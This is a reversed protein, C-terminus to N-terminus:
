KASVVCCNRSGLARGAHLRQIHRARARAVKGEYGDGRHLSRNRGRKWLLLPGAPTREAKLRPAVSAWLEAKPRAHSTWVYMTQEFTLYKRVAVNQEIARVARAAIATQRRVHGYQGGGFQHGLYVADSTSVPGNYFQLAKARRVPDPELKSSPLWVWDIM